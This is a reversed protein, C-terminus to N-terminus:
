ERNAANKQEKSNRPLIRCYEIKVYYGKSTEIEIFVDHGKGDYLKYLSSCSKIDEKISFNSHPGTKQCGWEFLLKQESYPADDKLECPFSVKEESFIWWDVYHRGRGDHNSYALLVTGSPLKVGTLQQFYDIDKQNWQPFPEADTISVHKIVFFIAGCFGWIVFMFLCCVGVLLMIKIKSYKMINKM